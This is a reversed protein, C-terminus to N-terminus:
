LASHVLAHMQPHPANLAAFPTHILSLSLYMHTYKYTHTYIHTHICIYMSCVCVSALVHCLGASHRVMLCLEDVLAQSDCSKFDLFLIGNQLSKIVAYDKWWRCFQWEHGIQPFPWIEGYIRLQNKKRIIQKIFILLWFCSLHVKGNVKISDPGLHAKQFHM